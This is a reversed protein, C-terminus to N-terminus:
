ALLQEARSACAFEPEDELLRQPQTDGSAGQRCQNGAGTPQPSAPAAAEMAELLVVEGAAQGMGGDGRRRSLLRGAYKREHGTVQCFEDLLKTKAPKGTYRRYRCSMKELYEDRTSRSM